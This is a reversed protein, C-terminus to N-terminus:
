GTSTGPTSWALARLREKLDPHRSSRSRPLPETIYGITVGRLSGFLGAPIIEPRFVIVVDPDFERLSALMPGPRAEERFDIFAPELGAVAASLSCQRFYIDQGVFAVRREAARAGGAAPSPDEPVGVLM